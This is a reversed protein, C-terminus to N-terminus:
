PVSTSVTASFRWSLVPLGIGLGSHWSIRNV